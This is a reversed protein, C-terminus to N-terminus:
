RFAFRATLESGDRFRLVLERCGAWSRETKWVFSYRGSGKAYSLAPKPVTRVANGTACARTLPYGAALVDRGRDGGLSFSIPVASGAKVPIGTPLSKGAALPGAAVYNLRGLAWTTFASTRVTIAADGSSMAARSAVCPDPVAHSAHTCNGVLVGNRFVQVDAPLVSELHSADVTFTTVYPATASALPAKVVVQTGFLDFGSPASGSPGATVELKGTVGTPVTVATQVPVYETATAGTSLTEGGSVVASLGGPVVAVVEHALASSTSGAYSGNPNFRATISHTGVALSSTTWSVSTVGSGVNRSVTPTAGDYFTVSSTPTGSNGSVTATFTVEVGVVSTSATSALTTTTTVQQIVVFSKTSTSGAWSAGGDYTAVVSVMGHSNPPAFVPTWTATGGPGLPVTEQGIGDASFTVTGTPTSRDTAAVTATFTLSRGWVVASYPSEDPSLTTTTATVATVTQALVSSVSDEFEGSGAFRATLSHAGPALASTTATAVGTADVTSTGILSTGDYFSVSGTPTHGASTVTATLVLPAGQRSPNPASALSTATPHGAVTVDTPASSSGLFLADGGYTAEVQGAGVPLASTTWTASATSRGSGTWALPVSVHSGGVSFVVDGTPVREVSSTVTATFTVPQGAGAAAPAATVTTTSPAKTVVQTLPTASSPAFGLDGAYEARIVHTGPEIGLAVTWSTLGNRVTASISRDNDYFTLTGGDPVPGGSSTVVATFRVEEGFVMPNNSSTLTVATPAEPAPGAFLATCASLESTDGTVLDTATTTVVGGAASGGSVTFSAAGAADTTVDVSGLYAAAEGHGSPDCAPSSFAEVRFSRSATSDLTGSVTTGAAHSVASTIVPFNQLANAGSDADGTDNATVGNSGLDIALADNSHFRNRTLTNGSSSVIRVGERNFAITNDAITNRSSLYAELGWSTGPNMDLTGTSDTGIANHQVTSGPGASPGSLHVGNAIVNGHAPTPGGITNGSSESVSVGRASPIVVQGASDTGIRNGAVTNGPALAIEVGNGVHGAIVNGAGPADGGVLNNTAGNHVWVGTLPSGSGAPIAIKATGAANTGFFNGQVVNESTLSGGGSTLYVGVGAGSILNRAAATTGGILNGASRNIEIAGYDFGPAVAAGSADTGLYNGQVTNGGDTWLRIGRGFGNLVFGRITSSGGYVEFATGAAITGTVEILPAGSFGPQTTADLVVPEVLSPLFSAVSIRQHGGGGVSFSITDPGPNTNAAELAERLTCESATCGGTGADSASNVVLSLPAASASGAAVLGTTAALAIVGLAAAFRM